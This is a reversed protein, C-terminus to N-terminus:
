FLSSINTNICNISLSRFVWQSVFNELLMRM